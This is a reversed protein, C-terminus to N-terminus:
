KEQLRLKVPPLCNENNFKIVYTAFTSGQKKSKAPGM